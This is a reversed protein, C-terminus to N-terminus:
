VLEVAAKGIYNFSITISRIGIRNLDGISTM